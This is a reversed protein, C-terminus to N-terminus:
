STVPRSSDKLETIVQPIAVHLRDSVLIDHPAHSHSHCIHHAFLMQYHDKVARDSPCYHRVGERGWNMKWPFWSGLFGASWQFLEFTEEGNGM